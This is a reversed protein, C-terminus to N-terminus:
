AFPQRVPMLNAVASRTTVVDVLPKPSITHTLRSRMIPQPRLPPRPTAQSPRPDRSKHFIFDKNFCGYDIVVSSSGVHLSHLGVLEPPANTTRSQWYRTGQGYLDADGLLQLRRNVFLSVTRDRSTLLVPEPFLCRGGEEMSTLESRSNWYGSVLERYAYPTVRCSGNLDQTTAIMAQDRQIELSMHLSTDHFTKSADVGTRAHTAM